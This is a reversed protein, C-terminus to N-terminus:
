AKRPASDFVGPVIAQCDPCRGQRVRNTVLTFGRRTLLSAGCTACSTDARSAGGCNGTYVQQLGAARGIEVAAEIRQLSGPKLHLLQHAPFFRSVHWPIRRDLSALRGAVAALEEDSDNFGPVLLTTAEVWVGLELLIELSGLVPALAAGTLRRHVAESGAKIDLNVAGLFPALQRLPAPNIHGNSVLVSPIGLALGARAVELAYEFYVIPESYTHAISAAGHAQATAALEEPELWNHPLVAADARSLHANQCFVCHLNCGATAYSLAQTGPLFQYLPKKEIPDLGLAAV